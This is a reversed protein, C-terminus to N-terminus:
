PGSSIVQLAFGTKSAVLIVSPCFSVPAFSAVLLDSTARAKKVQSSRTALNKPKKSIKQSLALGDKSIAFHIARFIGNCFIFILLFM